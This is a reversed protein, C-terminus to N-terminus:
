YLGTAAVAAETTFLSLDTSYGFDFTLLVAASCDVTPSVPGTATL